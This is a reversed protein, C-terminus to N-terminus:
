KHFRDNADVDAPCLSGIMSDVIVPSVKCRTLGDSRLPAATRPSMERVQQTISAVICPDTRRVSGLAILITEGPGSWAISPTMM